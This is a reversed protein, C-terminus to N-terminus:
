NVSTYKKAARSERGCMASARTASPNAPAMGSKSKRGDDNAANNTTKANTNRLVIACAIRAAIQILTWGEANSAGIMAANEVRRTSGTMALPIANSSLGYPKLAIVAGTSSNDYTLPPANTFASHSGLAGITKGSSYM